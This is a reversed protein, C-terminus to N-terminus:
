KGFLFFAADNFQNLREIFPGFCQSTEREKGKKYILTEMHGVRGEGHEDARLLFLSVRSCCVTLTWM